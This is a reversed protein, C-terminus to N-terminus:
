KSSLSPFSQEIDRPLILIRKEDRILMIQGKIYGKSILNALICMLDNLDITNDWHKLREYLM